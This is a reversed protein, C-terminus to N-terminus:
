TTPCPGRPTSEDALSIQRVLPGLQRPTEKTSADRLDGPGTTSTPSAIRVDAFGTAPVCLSVSATTDGSPLAGSWRGANSRVTARGATDTEFVISLSRTLPEKQGEQAYVRVFAARGPLLWGDDTLGRSVWAARWPRQAGMLVMDGPAGIRNGALRFRSDLSTFLVYDAGSRSAFGTSPDFSLALKPFSSPTWSFAGDVTASSSVDENWFEASWWFAISASFDTKLKPYPILTVRKGTGLQRDVWNFVFGNPQTLPQGSTGNVRFLREFGYAMQAPLVVALLV